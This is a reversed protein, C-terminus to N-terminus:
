TMREAKLKSSPLAEGSSIRCDMRLPAWTLPVLRHIRTSAMRMAEMPSFMFEVATMM